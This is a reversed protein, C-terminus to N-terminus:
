VHARGIEAITDGSIVPEDNNLSTWTYSDYSVAMHLSHDADKHYVMVYAGMEAETPVKHAKQANVALTAMLATTLLILKKM